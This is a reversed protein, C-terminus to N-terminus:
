AACEKKCKCAKLSAIFEYAVEVIDGAGMIMVLDGPQVVSLLADVIQGRPLLHANRHGAAAVKEYINRSSVNEIPKEGAPYIDTL